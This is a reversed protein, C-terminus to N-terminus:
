EGRPRGFYFTVTFLPTITTPYQWSYVPLGVGAGWTVNTPWTFEFGPVAWLYSWAPANARGFFLNRGSQSQGVFEATYGLGWYDNLVHEFAGAYYLLNGDVMRQSHGFPTQMIGNNFTYGGGVRTPNEVIDDFEFYLEFPKFRKRILLGLGENWTGNGFQDAGLASPSLNRYNGTPVYLISKLSIAPLALLRRTDHDVVFQHKFELHFNGVGFHTASKGPDSQIAPKGPPDAPAAAPASTSNLLFNPYVDLESMYGIGLAFRQPMALTGSRQGPQLYYYLWPEVYMSGAPEVEATGTFNPGSTTVDWAHAASNVALAAISMALALGYTKMIM